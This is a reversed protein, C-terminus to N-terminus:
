GFICEVMTGIQVRFGLAFELAPAGPGAVTELGMVAREPVPHVFVALHLAGEPDLPFVEVAHAVDM